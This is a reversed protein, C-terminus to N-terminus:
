PTPATLNNYTEVLHEYLAKVYVDYNTTDSIDGQLAIAEVMAAKFADVEDGSADTGLSHYYGANIAETLKNALALTAADDKLEERLYAAIANVYLNYGGYANLFGIDFSELLCFEEITRISLEKDLGSMDGNFYALLIDASYTFFRNLGTALYIEYAVISRTEGSDTSYQLGLNTLYYWYLKGAVNFESALTTSKNNITYLKNFLALIVEPEAEREEGPEESGAGYELIYYYYFEAKEYLAYLVTLAGEKMTAVSDPNTFDISKLHVDYIKAIADLTKALEDLM